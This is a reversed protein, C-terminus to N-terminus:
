RVGAGPDASPQGTGEQPIRVVAASGRGELFRRLGEADASVPEEGEDLDDPERALVDAWWDRTDECLAAM